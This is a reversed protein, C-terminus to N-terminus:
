AAAEFRFHHLNRFQNIIIQRLNHILFLSGIFVHLGHFGTAIFFISGFISDNLCFEAFLYETIQLASFLMGLLITM